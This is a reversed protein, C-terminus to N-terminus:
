KEGGNWVRVECLVDFFNGNPCVPDFQRHLLESWSGAKHQHSQWGKPYVLVGPKQGPNLVARAVAHGRDNFCEVYDGNKIGRQAADAPNIRVIPESELQNLWTSSHWQSHARFRPRESLLVMPYKEFLPNTPWAEIPEIFRPVRERDVPLDAGYPLHSYVQEVYFELRGSATLFVKEASPMYPLERIAINGEKKLRELTVGAQRSFDSDLVKELHEDDTPTLQDGLGLADALLRSIDADSKSEWQPEIAQESWRVCGDETTGYFEACEFQHCVPLVIDSHKTTDTHVIDQTVVFEMQPWIEDLLERTGPSCCIPNGAVIWLAKIPWPQGMFEGSDLVDKLIYNSFSQSMKGNPPVAAAYNIGPYGASHHGLMAGPKGYNGTVAGLAIVAASSHVGNGYAQSGYAILHSIPGDACQYALDVIQQETLDTLEAAKTVDYQDFEDRFVSFATRCKTGFVDFEGELSPAQANDAAIPAGAAEDWVLPVEPSAADGEQTPTPVFDSMRAFMGDPKVLFPAVTHNLLFELDHKNEDVIIKICALALAADAAPRIPLWTDAVSAIGTFVPDIVTLRTGGELADFIWHSDHPMSKTPNNGWVIISRANVLDGLDNAFTSAAGLMRIEAWAEAMDVDNDVQTAGMANRLMTPLGPGIFGNLSSMNGSCGWQGIAQEGYEAQIRKFNDAVERIAEDWSIREWQGSGREGVRRMPYKIRNEDYIRQPHSLGRQCIREYGEFPVSAQSTKVVKGDRVHVNLYCAGFCNPRCCCHKIEEGESELQGAAYNQAHANVASTGGLAALGLVGSSVKLFGRRTLKTKLTKDESM